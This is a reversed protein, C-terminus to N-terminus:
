GREQAGSQPSTEQELPDDVTIVSWTPSRPPSHPSLAIAAPIKWRTGMPGVVIRMGADEPNDGSHAFDGHEAVSVTLDVMEPVIDEIVHEAENNTNSSVEASRCHDPRELTLHPPLDHSVNVATPLGSPTALRLVPKQMSRTDTASQPAEELDFQRQINTYITLPIQSHRQPKRRTRGFRSAQPVRSAVEISLDPSPPDKGRPLGAFSNASEVEVGESPAGQLRLESGSVRVAKQKARLSQIAAGEKRRSDLGNLYDAPEQWGAPTHVPISDPGKRKVVPVIKGPGFKTHREWKQAAPLRLLNDRPLRTSAAALGMLQPNKTWGELPTRNKRCAQKKQPAPQAISPALPAVGERRPAFAREVGATQPPRSSTDGHGVASWNTGPQVQQLINAFKRQPLTRPGASRRSSSAGAAPVSGLHNMFFKVKPKIVQDTGEMPTNFTHEDSDQIITSAESEPAEEIPLTATPCQAMSGSTDAPSVSSQAPQGPDDWNSLEYILDSANM